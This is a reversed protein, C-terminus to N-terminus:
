VDERGESSSVVQWAFRERFDEFCTECIWHYDDITAYGEHLVDPLDGLMFKAGCFECHDHDWNPNKSYRRYPRRVLTVGQLYRDQGQLRWDDHRVM